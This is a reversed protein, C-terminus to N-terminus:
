DASAYSTDEQSSPDEATRGGAAKGETQEQAVVPEPPPTKESEGHDTTLTDGTQAAAEGRPVTPLTITVTTGVRETSSIDLMGGHARVIEDAVALGIGSGRTAKKGKYFKATVRDLEEEPIGCGTDSIMVTVYGGNTCVDALIKGGRPTYKMANDLINIFVQRLRGGDAQILPIEDGEDFILEVGARNAADTYTLVAEELEAAVDCKEMKFSFQGNQLRSFDLLDEVLNSLRESEHIIVDLGKRVVEPDNEAALVTEGWGKIATLPTRLEHSVSSIFENQMRESLSLESAMNNISNCLQGIEDSSHNEIRAEFDGMAIQRATENIAQVPGVISKIFYAGSLVSILIIILGIASLLGVTLWLDRNVESLSTVIRVYGVPLNDNSRSELAFTLQMVPEGSSLRRQVVVPDGQPLDRELLASDEAAPPLGSTTMLLEQNTNFFQVEMRNRDEYEEAFIQIGREYDSANGTTYSQFFLIVSSMRGTLNRGVIDYYFSFNTLSFFLVTLLVLGIVLSLVNTIWRKTLGKQHLLKM